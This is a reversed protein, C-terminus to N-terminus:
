RSRRAREAGGSARARGLLAAADAITPRWRSSRRYVVDAAAVWQDNQQLRIAISMAEDLDSPPPGDTPSQEMHTATWRM